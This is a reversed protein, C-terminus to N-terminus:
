WNSARDCGCTWKSSFPKGRILSWLYVDWHIPNWRWLSKSRQIMGINCCVSNTMEKQHVKLKRIEAEWSFIFDKMRTKCKTTWSHELTRVDAFLLILISDDVNRHSPCPSNSKDCSLLKLIHIEFIPHFPNTMSWYKKRSGEGWSPSLRLFRVNKIPGLDSWLRGM